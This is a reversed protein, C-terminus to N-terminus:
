GNIVRRIEMLGRIKDKGKEGTHHQIKIPGNYDDHDTALRMVNWEFPLDKVYTMKTIPNLLSHLVEQDGVEPNKRIANCWQHLINPKGIFGVVGSNHWLEGRRKTWPKDEVMALKNPELLKFLPEVSAKIECDIDIWITKKAPSNIMAIPKNFWGKDPTGTLDMVPGIVRKKMEESMGFDCVLVKTRPSHVRMNHVWWEFMWEAKSDFGTIVCNEYDLKIKEM